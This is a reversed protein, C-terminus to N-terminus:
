EHERGKARPEAACVGAATACIWTLLSIMIPSAECQKMDIGAVIFVKGLYCSTAYVGVIWLGVVLPGLLAVALFVKVGRATDENM